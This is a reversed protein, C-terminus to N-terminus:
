RELKKRYHLMDVIRRNRDSIPVNYKIDIIEYQNRELMKKSRENDRVVCAYLSNLNLATSSHEEIQKLANTAIGHGEDNSSLWYWVEADHLFHDIKDLGIMGAVKNQNLVIFYEHYPTAYIKHQIYKIKSQFLSILLFALSQAFDPTTRKSAWFFYPILRDRNADLVRYFDSAYRIVTAFNLRQLETSMVGFVTFLCM